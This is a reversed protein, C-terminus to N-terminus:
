MGMTMCKDDPGLQSRDGIYQCAFALTALAKDSHHLPRWHAEFESGLASIEAETPNWKIGMDILTTCWSKSIGNTAVQGTGDTLWQTMEKVQVAQNGNLFADLTEVDATHYASLLKQHDKVKGVDLEVKVDVGAAELVDRRGIGSRELIPASGLASGCLVVQKGHIIDRGCAVGVAQEGDFVVRDVSRRIITMKADLGPEYLFKRAASCRSGSEDIYKYHWGYGDGHYMDAMDDLPEMDRTQKAADFFELMWEPTAHGGKTIVMPGDGTGNVTHRFSKDIFPKIENFSWGPQKWDDWDSASAQNYIM